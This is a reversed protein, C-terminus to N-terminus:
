WIMRENTRGSVNSAGAEQGCIWNTPCYIPWDGRQHAKELQHDVHVPQHLYDPLYSIHRYVAKVHQRSVAYAHTRHISAGRMVGPRDTPQPSRRHQGGLYIQGWDPPVNPMFTALTELANDLFFVDDELILASDWAVGDREDRIHLLDECARCHSRFCGWGGNGAKWGAPHGTYDGIVAKCVTIKDWDALGGETLHTQLKELRDPRHACNIVLVHDFWDTIKKPVFDPLVEM